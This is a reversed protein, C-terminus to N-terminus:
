YGGTIALLSLEIDKLTLRIEAVPENHLIAGSKGGQCGPMVWTHKISILCLAKSFMGIQCDWAAVVTNEAGPVQFIKRSSSPM